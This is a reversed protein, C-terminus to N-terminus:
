PLREVWSADKFWRETLRQLDGSGELSILINRVWNVLLPDDAPLAIGLPEYTFRAKGAVLGKQRYRFAAVACTHFDAILADVKDEIVLKVAEDMSKSTTLKANPILNEVFLQSTSNKLAALSFEPKNMESADQLIAVTQAKTLIGKGTVYYPGVFAVKLNRKPLMTMGSLIM